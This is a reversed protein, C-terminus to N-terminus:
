AAGRRKVQEKKEAPLIALTPLGVSRQIDEPTSVKDDLIFLLTYIAMPILAGVLFGLMIKVRKRDNIPRNPRLATTIIPPEDTSMVESIFEQSVVAYENALIMAREPDSSTASLTIIRSNDSASASLAEAYGYEEFAGPYRAELNLLVREKVEWVSLIEEYDYRVQSGVSLMTSISTTLNETNVTYLKTTARYVPTFTSTAYFAMMVTGLVAGLLIIKYKALLAYFLEILDIETVDQQTGKATAMTM